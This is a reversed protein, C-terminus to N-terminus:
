QKILSGNKGYGHEDNFQDFEVTWDTSWATLMNINMQNPPLIMTLSALQSMCNERM